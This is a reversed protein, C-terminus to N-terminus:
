GSTHRAWQLYEGEGKQVGDIESKILVADQLDVDSSEEHMFVHIDARKANSGVSLCIDREILADILMPDELSNVGHDVREVGLVDICQWIHEVSDKQDVDCHATM